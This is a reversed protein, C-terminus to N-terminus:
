PCRVPVKIFNGISSIQLGSSSLDGDQAAQANINYAAWYGFNVKKCKQLTFMGPGSFQESVLLDIRSVQAILGPVPSNAGKPLVLSIIQGYAPDKSPSLTGAIIITKSLNSYARVYISNRPGSYMSLDLNVKHIVIGTAGKPRLLSIGQGKAMLSGKPCNQVENLVTLAKCSSLNRKNIKLQKPIVINAILTSFPLDKLSAEGDVGSKFDVNLDSGTKTMKYQAYQLDGPKAQAAGAGILLLGIACLACVFKKYSQSQPWKDEFDYWNM